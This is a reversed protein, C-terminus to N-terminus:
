MARRGRDWRPAAAPRAGRAAADGGRWAAARRRGAGRGAPAWRDWAIGRAMGRGRGGGGGCAEVRPGRTRTRPPPHILPATLALPPQAAAPARRPPPRPPPCAARATLHSSTSSFQVAAACRFARQKTEPQRAPPASDRPVRAGRLLLLLALTPLHAHPPPGTRSLSAVTPVHISLIKRPREGLAKCGGTCSDEQWQFSFFRISPPPRRSYKKPHVSKRM